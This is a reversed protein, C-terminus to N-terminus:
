ACPPSVTAGGLHESPLRGPKPFPQDDLIVTTDVGHRRAFGRLQAATPPALPRGPVSFQFTLRNAVPDALFPKPLHDRGLDGEAMRFWFGSEAQWLMSDGWRGFPLILVTSGQPICTRYVRSAFFAPRLPHQRYEEHWLSPVIAAIALLPLVVPRAAIRGSTGGIWLAVIVAAALSIYVAFREPLVNDLVPIRAAITWPFAVLRRGDVYLGTGIALVVLTGLAVLLFRTEAVVRRRWGWLAIVAIMPLGLYSGEEDANGPFRNSVSHLWSGGIATVHTPVALNLVDAPFEYPDLDSPVFGRLAYVLFPAALIAAITYGAVLPAFSTRIRPRDSPILVFALALGIAIVLTLTLAIETSIYLQLALLVGIRWALGRPQLEGRVFRIVALAVLPLVFVATLNLHGALQHGLIYSSFGFLYGGVVSAWLSHTLYRCLLFATWASLAPLALAAVNFAVAPGFIATVPWFAYALAPVSTTWTLNIGQPAYVAHTFFPNTWSTLAHPWWAFSWAFLEPDLQQGNGVLDRGPHPLLPWGFYLFSVACYGALVAASGGAGRGFVPARAAV